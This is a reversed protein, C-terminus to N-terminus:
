QATWGALPRAVPSAVDLIGADDTWLDIGCQEALAVYAADYATLGKGTWVAVRELDPERWEFGIQDLRTALEVVQPTPWRWRRAAANLVELALLAPALVVLNGEVYTARMALAERELDEGRGGFWKLVVSADLVAETM